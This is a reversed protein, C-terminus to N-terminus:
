YLLIVSSLIYILTKFFSSLWFKLNIFICGKPDYCFSAILSENEFYVCSLVIIDNSECYLFFDDYRDHTRLSAINEFVNQESLVAVYLDSLIHRNDHNSNGHIAYKKEEDYEHCLKALVICKM